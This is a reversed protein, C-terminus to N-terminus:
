PNYCTNIFEYDVWFYLVTVNACLATRPRLPYAAKHLFVSRRPMAKAASYFISIKNFSPHLCHRLWGLIQLPALYELKLRTVNNQKPFRRELCLVVLCKLFKPAITGKARHNSLVALWSFDRDSEAKREKNKKALYLYFKLISTITKQM